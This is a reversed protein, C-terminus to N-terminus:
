VQFLLYERCSSNHHEQVLWGTQPPTLCSSPLSLCTPARCPRHSCRRPFEVSQSWKQFVSKHTIVSFERPSRRCLPVVAQSNLCPRELYLRAHFHFFCQWIVNNSQLHCGSVSVRLHQKLHKERCRGDAWTRLSGLREWITGLLQRIFM